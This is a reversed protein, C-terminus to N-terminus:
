ISNRLAIVMVVGVVTALIISPIIPQTQPHLKGIGVFHAGVFAILFFAAFIVLMRSGIERLPRKPPDTDPGM